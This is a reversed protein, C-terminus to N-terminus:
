YYVISVEEPLVRKKLEIEAKLEDVIKILKEPQHIGKRVEMLFEREKGDIWVNPNGTREISNNLSYGGDVIRKAENLLRLAHYFNKTDTGKGDRFDKVKGLAYGVYQDVTHQSLVCKRVKKM